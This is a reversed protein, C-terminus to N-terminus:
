GFIYARRKVDAITREKSVGRESKFEAVLTNRRAGVRVRDPSGFPVGTFTV